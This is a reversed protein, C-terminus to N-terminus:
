ERKHFLGPVVELEERMRRHVADDEGHRQGGDDAHEGRAHVIQGVGIEYTKDVRLRRRGHANGERHHADDLCDSEEEAVPRAVVDCATQTCAVHLTRPTHSSRAHHETKQGTEEDGHQSVKEESRQTKEQTRRGGDQGVGLTIQADDQQTRREHRSREREVVLHAKLAIRGIGHTANERAHQKVEHEGRQEDDVEAQADRSGGDGGQDALAESAKHQPAHASLPLVDGYLGTEKRRRPGKRTLNEGAASRRKRTLPQAANRSQHEIDSGTGIAIRGNCAHRDHRADAEEGVGDDDAQALTKLREAAEAVAGSKITADLLCEEIADLQARQKQENAADHTKDKGFGDDLLKASVGLDDKHARRGQTPM